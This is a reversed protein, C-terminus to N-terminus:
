PFRQLYCVTPGLTPASVSTANTPIGYIRDDPGRVAGRWGGRPLHGWRSSSVGYTASKVYSTGKNCGGADIAPMTVGLSVAPILHFISAISM